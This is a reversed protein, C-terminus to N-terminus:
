DFLSDIASQDLIPRSSSLGEPATDYAGNIIGSCRDIQKRLTKAAAACLDIVTETAGGAQAARVASFLAAVEGDIESVTEELAERAAEPAQDYAAIALAAHSLGSAAFHEAYCRPTWELAADAMDPMDAVLDLLMVLENFHNLYDSSLLTNPDISTGAVLLRYTRPYRCIYAM